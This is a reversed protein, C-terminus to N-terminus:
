FTELYEVVASGSAVFGYVQATTNITLAALPTLSIGTTGSVSETITVTVSTSTNRLTIAIRGTGPAGTRASVISTPSGSAGSVSTTSTHFAGAGVSIIPANNPSLCVPIACDAAVAATSAAKVPLVNADVSPDGIVATERHQAATTTVWTDVKKGTSDPPVQIFSQAM